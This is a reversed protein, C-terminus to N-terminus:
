AQLAFRFMEMGFYAQRRTFTLGCKELVRQSAINLPDTLGIIESLKIESIGFQVSAKAAETAYGKGWFIGSLLYGVETENTDPLFELGCWGMLQGTERLTVAMQGYSHKDWHETQYQISRDVKEMSWATKTPFYQLINPEQTIQFLAERDATTFLRLLLRETTIIKNSPSM